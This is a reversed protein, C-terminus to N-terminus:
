RPLSGRAPGRERPWSWAKGQGRARSTPGTGPRALGGAPPSDSSPGNKVLALEVRVQTGKEDSTIAFRGGLESVRERMGAIGAGFNSYGPPSAASVEAPLGKGDDTVELVIKDADKLIRVTANKAQAHRRVNTLSEQVIRFLAAEYGEPLAGLDPQISLQVAIGTRETFANVLYDLASPFGVEDIIHPNLLHAMSRVEKSVQRLLRSSDDLLKAAKPTLAKAEENVVALDIAAAALDQATSDHLERAIRRREEEQLNIMRASLQGLSRESQKRGYVLAIHEGLRQAANMFSPDPALPGTSFFEWIAHIKRGGMIPLGFASKLGSRVASAGRASNMQASLDYFWVPKGAKWVQGPLDEGEKLTANTTLEAFEPVNISCYFSRRDFRLVQAAEDFFWAAGVRWGGLKAIAGLCRSSVNRSDEAANAIATIEVLLRLAEVARKRETINTDTGLWGLTEGSKDRYPAWTRSVIVQSGDKRTNILEGRWYGERVLHKRMEEQPDPFVAKLISRILQGQWHSNRRIRKKVEEQPQPFVTKLISHIGKGLVEEKRWGYLREAGENWYRIRDDLGRILVADSAMDLLQAQKHIMEEAGKRATIDEISLLILHSGSYSEEMARGQFLLTKRGIRPLEQEVELRAFREGNPHIGQLFHRLKPINWIGNGSGCISRGKTAEPSVQFLDYFARNAAQVSLNVDLVLLPTHVSEVIAEPLSRTELGSRRWFSRRERMVGDVTRGGGRVAIAKM